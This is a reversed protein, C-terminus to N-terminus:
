SLKFIKFKCPWGGSLDEQRRKLGTILPHRKEHHIVVRADVFNATAAMPLCQLAEIKHAKNFDNIGTLCRHLTGMQLHQM